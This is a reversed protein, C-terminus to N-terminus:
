ARRVKLAQERAAAVSQNGSFLQFHTDFSIEDAKEREMKLTDDEKERDIHRETWRYHLSFLVIAATMFRDDHSGLAAELKQKAEAREINDIEEVLYPSNVEFERDRLMTTIQEMAWRRSTANTYWCLRNINELSLKRLALTHWRHFNRWGRLHLDEATRDGGTQGELIIRPQQKPGKNISRAYWTGIAMLLPWSDKAAIYSSALEACQRARQSYTSRSIVQFATNDLGKGESFDGGIGYVVNDEPPHWVLLKNGHPDDSSHGKWKLPILYFVYPKQGKHWDAVIRIWETKKKIEDDSLNKDEFDKATLIDNKAPKFIAPILGQDNWIAYVAVPESQQSRLEFVMEEDFARQVDDQFCSMDDAAMEVMFKYLKDAEKAEDYLVEYHWMQERPMTWELGLHKQIEPDSAVYQRAKEAQDITITKPQWNLPIPNKRMWAETPHIDTFLYWPLFRPWFQARGLAALKKQSKWKKHWWTGKRGGTGEVMGFVLPHDHVAHLLAAEIDEEPHLWEDLETVHFLQWTGGRARAAKQNGAAAVCTNQQEAIYAYAGVKDKNVAFFAIEPKLWWPMKEWMLGLKQNCLDSSKEPTASAIIGRRGTFFTYLHCQIAVSFTTIGGQRAKLLLLKKAVGMRELAALMDFIIKQAITLALRVMPGFASEIWIYNTIFYLADWKCLAREARIFQQEQETLARKLGQKDETLLSDLHKTWWEIEPLSRRKITLRLRKSALAIQQDSITRDYM